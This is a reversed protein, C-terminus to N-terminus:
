ETGVARDQVGSFCNLLLAGGLNLYVLSTNLRLAESIATMGSSGIDNDAHSTPM